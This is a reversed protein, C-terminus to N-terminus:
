MSAVRVLRPGRPTKVDNATEYEVRAMTLAMTKRRPLHFCFATQDARRRLDPGAFARSSIRRRDSAAPAARSCLQIESVGNSALSWLSSEPKVLVGFACRM